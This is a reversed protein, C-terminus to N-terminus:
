LGRRLSLVEDSFSIFPPQNATGPSSSILAPTPRRSALAALSGVSGGGIEEPPSIPQYRFDPHNGKFVGAIRDREDRGYYIGGNPDHLVANEPFVDNIAGRRRLPDIQGFVDELKRLLM